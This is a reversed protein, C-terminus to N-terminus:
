QRSNRELDHLVTLRNVLDVARQDTLIRSQTSPFPEPLQLSQSVSDKQKLVTMNWLWVTLISVVFGIAGGVVTSITVNRLESKKDEESRSVIYGCLAGIGSIVLYFILTYILKM